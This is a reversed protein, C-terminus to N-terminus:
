KRNFWWGLWAGALAWSVVADILDPISNTEFWISNTYSTTLYSILGVVIASIVTTQMTINPIKMLLWSLLWVAVVDVLLGRAMNMGMGANYAKHYSIQAWPKGMCTEMLKEQEEPTAGPAYTPLFYTGDESLQSSLVSLITDQNATYMQTSGHVNLMAWSLFQWIFVLLGGVLAGIILKSNM